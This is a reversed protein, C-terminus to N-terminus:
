NLAERIVAINETMISLYSAGNEIDSKSVYQCSHLVAKNIEYEGLQKEIANIINGDSTETFLVTDIKNESITESLAIITSLSIDSASSCGSMAAHYGISYEKFLYLFPFRDAIVIMNGSASEVCKEFNEDLEGLKKSRTRFLPRVKKSNYNAFLIM